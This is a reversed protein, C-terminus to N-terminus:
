QVVVRGLENVQITKNGGNVGVVLTAGSSLLGVPSFTLASPVTVFAVGSPLMVAVGDNAFNGGNNVQVQYGGASFIMRHQASRGIAAMRVRVLDTAVQQSARAVQHLQFFAPLRAAAMGSLVVFLSLAVLLEILSYGRACAM